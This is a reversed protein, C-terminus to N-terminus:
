EEGFKDNVLKEIADLASNADEGSATVTIKSGKAAALMMVGMISKGNVEQRGRSITIDAKFKNTLQVFQSAARAHLGLKNQIILTKKAVSNSKNNDNM